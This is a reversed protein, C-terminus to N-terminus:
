KNPVKDVEAFIRITPATKEAKYELTEKLHM